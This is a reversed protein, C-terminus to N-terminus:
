DAHLAGAGVAGSPAFGNLARGGAVSGGLRWLDQDRGAAGPKAASAIAVLNLV